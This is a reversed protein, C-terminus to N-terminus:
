ANVAHEWILRLLTMICTPGSQVTFGFPLLQKYLIYATVAKHSQMFTAFDYVRAASVIKKFLISILPDKEILIMM